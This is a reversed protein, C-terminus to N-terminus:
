ADWKAKRGPLPASLVGQEAGAFAKVADAFSGFMRRAEMAQRFIARAAGRDFGAAALKGLWKARHEATGIANEPRLGMELAVARTEKQTMRKVFM